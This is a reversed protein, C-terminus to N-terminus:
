PKRGNRVYQMRLGSYIVDYDGATKANPNDNFIKTAAQNLKAIEDPELKVDPSAYFEQKQHEIRAIRSNDTREIDWGKGSFRVTGNTSAHKQKGNRLNLEDLSGKGNVLAGLTKLTQHAFNGFISM